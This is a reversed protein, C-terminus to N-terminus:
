LKTHEYIKGIHEIFEKKSLSSKMVNCTTCCAVINDDIYGKRSDMRDIGNLVLPTEGNRASRKLPIPSAGCYACNGSAVKFWTDPTINVTIDTGKVRELIRYKFNYEIQTYKKSSQPRSKLSCKPCGKFDKHRLRQGTTIFIASCKCKVKYSKRNNTNPVETLVTCGNIITNPAISYKRKATLARNANSCSRCVIPATPNSSSSTYAQKEIPKGCDRCAILMRRVPKKSFQTPFKMGLDKLIYKHHVKHVIETLPKM